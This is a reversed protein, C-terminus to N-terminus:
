HKLNHKLDKAKLGRAKKLAEERSMRNISGLYVKKVKKDIRWSAYWYTYTKDKGKRVRKTMEVSYVSVTNLRSKFKISKALELKDSSSKELKLAMKKADIQKLMKLYKSAMREIHATKKLEDVRNGTDIESM